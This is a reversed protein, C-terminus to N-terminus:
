PEVVVYENLDHGKPKNRKNPAFHPNAVKEKGYNYFIM